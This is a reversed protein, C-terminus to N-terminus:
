HGNVTSTPAAPIPAPPTTNMPNQSSGALEYRALRVINIHRMDAFPRVTFTRGNVSDVVGVPLHAPFLGGHGSTSVRMGKAISVDEPIYNLQAPADGQGSLIAKTNAEEVMVPLHFSLDNMLLIRSSWAGVEIVRGVVGNETLAIMDKQVGDRAGATVIASHGFNSGAVGIVRATIFSLTSADKYNNLARLSKNEEEYQQALPVLAKLKANEDRLRENEERLHMWDNVGTQPGAQAALNFIPALMDVLGVRARVVAQPFFVNVIILLLAAGILALSSLHPALPRLFSPLELEKRRQLTSRAPGKM